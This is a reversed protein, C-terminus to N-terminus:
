LSLSNGAEPEPIQSCVGCVTSSVEFTQGERNSVKRGLFLMPIFDRQTSINNAITGTNTSLLQLPEFFPETLVLKM